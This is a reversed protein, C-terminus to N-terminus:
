RSNSNSNNFIAPIQTPLHQKHKICIDIFYKQLDINDTLEPHFSIAIINGQQIAVVEEAGDDLKISGLPVAPKSIRVFRPARIFVGTIISYKSSLKIKVDTEFSDIQRGFGNRDVELSLVELSEVPQNPHNNLIKNALLISGACTAFVPMGEQILLKIVPFMHWKQLIISMTTSEGGPMVLGDLPQTLDDVRRIPVCNAGTNIFAQAHNYFDGQLELIGLTVTKM